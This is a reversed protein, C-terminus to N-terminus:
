PHQCASEGTRREGAGRGRTGLGTDSRGGVRTDSDRTAAILTTMVAPSPREALISMIAARTEPPGQQAMKLIAQDADAGSMSALGERAANHDAGAGHLAIDALRPM